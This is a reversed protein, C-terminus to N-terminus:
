YRKFCCDLFTATKGTGSQSHLIVDKGQLAPVIGKQQIMSPKEFGLTYIGRYPCILTWIRLVSTDRVESESINNETLSM